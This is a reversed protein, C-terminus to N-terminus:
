VSVQIRRGRPVPRQRLGCGVAVLVGDNSADWSLFRILEARVRREYHDFIERFAILSRYFLEIISWSKSDREQAKTQSQEAM